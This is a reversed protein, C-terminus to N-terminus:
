AKRWYCLPSIHWHASNPRCQESEKQTILEEKPSTILVTNLIIEQSNWTTAETDWFRHPESLRNHVKGQDSNSKIKFTVLVFTKLTWQIFFSQLFILNHFSQYRQQSTHAPVIYWLKYKFLLDYPIKCLVKTGSKSLTKHITSSTIVSKAM